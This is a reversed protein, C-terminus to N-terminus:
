GLSRRILFRAIDDVNQLPIEENAFKEASCQQCHVTCGPNNRQRLYTLCLDQIKLSRFSPNMNLAHHLGSVAYRSDCYVDASSSKGGRGYVVNIWNIENGEPIRNLLQDVFAIRQAPGSASDLKWKEQNGTIQIKIYDHGSCNLVTRIRNLLDDALVSGPLLVHHKEFQILSVNDPTEIQPLEEDFIMVVNIQAEKLKRILANALSNWPFLILLDTRPKSYKM